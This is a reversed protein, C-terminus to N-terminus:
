SGVTKDVIIATTNASFGSYYDNLFSPNSATVRNDRIIIAPNISSYSSSIRYGVQIWSVFNGTINAPASFIGTNLVTTARNNSGDIIRGNSLGCYIYRCTNEKITLGAKKDANFSTNVTSFPIDEKTLFNIAGCTNKSIVVNIPVILDNVTSVPDPSSIMILQNKNCDNNDIVCDILRPGNKITYSTSPGVFAIACLKDDVSSTSIIKNNTIRVNEVFYPNSVTSNSFVASFFPFRNQNPSTFTCSDIVFNKNGVAAVQLFICAKSTNALFATNYSGDSTADYTYNFTCNIFANQNGLNFGTAIPVNFVCNNFSVNSGLTLLANVTVASNNGTFSVPIPYDLTVASSITTGRVEVNISKNQVTSASVYKTLQSIWGNLANISRFNGEQGLVYAGKLGSYGSSIYRRVDTVSNITSASSIAGTVNVVYLPVLDSYNILNSFYTGRVPYVISPSISNRVYFIRDQTLSGYTGAQSSLYDTSAVLEVEGDANACIFWNITNVNTSFSPFLTEIVAPIEVSMENINVIKGNILATGGNFSVTTTTNTVSDFGKIVGNDVILKQPAAIYDMASDTFQEESVNGFQREDKLYSVSKTTDDVQCSSILMFQQDLELSPFLQIDLTASAFSNITSNLIFTFDIYDINTEDYFRVIEGKKGTTLPGLNTFTSSGVNWRGLQGTYVGTTQDYNSISLRIEKDTGNTIYGRLKPSVRYLNISSIGTDTTLFRAREHTTTHGNGDVYVEFFRKYPGSTTADYVNEADFTVSDDSFYLNVGIGAPLTVYPSTGTGHVADYVTINTYANSSGCNNFAVDSIIFRGYNVDASLSTTPSQPQVVITKGPFLGSDSLDLNVKYVVQVRTPLVNVTTITAPWYGDGFNDQIGNLIIPDSKLQDREVGNAYFYNRKLPYFILSPAFIAANINAYATAVPPSAVNAGLVGFGMPDILNFNDVVNNPYSSNSASTYNGYGDVVGSIISFSANNYPDALSIGIQGNYEFAVFRYNFGPQRFAININNVISDLTYAGPTTGQNGTVDIPQLTFINTTDGNPLLTLYLNFHSSDFRSSDFGNGLALASRPNTVILSEYSGISNPARSVALVAYKDRHFTAHDIRAVANSNSVPNKGNIRVAYTRNSGNVIKKTSDVTFQYSIGTGYNVTILDGASVQAFQADFNFTSLQSATPNFLIIDDGHNFDDVPSSSQPGPPVNLLYATAPTPPVIPEGYGDALLSSSRSTRSVGNAYLNQIRSGLLLLSSNDIYELIQQLNSNTQPISTFTSPDVYIGAAMHAFNIPPITGGSTATVGSTSDAKEHVVLDNSIDLVLQDANTTNRNVVNTGASPVSSPSTKVIAPTSDVHIASLLHNYDTGDIHPELKIGTLSLFGNLIDVSSKLTSYLNYLSATSYTLNLKSEQIAATPSVQADTINIQTLLNILVSPYITGDPQLSVNLRSAISDTSGAAGIGINAEINFIAARCANIADAGIETINDDVRPLDLDSDLQNPFQSM